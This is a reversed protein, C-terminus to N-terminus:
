MYTKMLSSKFNELRQVQDADQIDLSVNPKLDGENPLIMERGHLLYFPSYGTMSHPTARYVM